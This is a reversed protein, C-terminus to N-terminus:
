TNIIKIGNNKFGDVFKKYTEDSVFGDTVKYERNSKTWKDKGYEHYRLLELDFTSKDLTNFFENFGSIDVDPNANFGNVLPIRIHIFKKKAAEKIVENGIGLVEKHVKSDYHKFDYIVYDIDDVSDVLSPNSANSEIAISINDKKLLIFLENLEKLQLSMEGGTFTVGGGDFFLRKCSVIEKHLEEVTYEKYSDVYKISMGDSNSCWPCNMNCGLMHIVLRNGPGDQSYNFGTKFVLIKKPNGENKM